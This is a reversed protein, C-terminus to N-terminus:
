SSTQPATEIGLIPAMRNEWLGPLEDELQENKLRGVDESKDISSVVEKEMLDRDDLYRQLRSVAEGLHDVSWDETLAVGILRGLLKWASERLVDYEPLEPLSRHSMRVVTLIRRHLPWGDLVSEEIMRGVELGDLMSYDGHYEGAFLPYGELVTKWVELKKVDTAAMSSFFGVRDMLGDETMRRLCDSSEEHAAISLLEDVIREKSVSVLDGAHELIQDRLESTVEFDLETAFRYARLIRLPDRVLSEEDTVRLNNQRIDDRGGCPDVWSERNMDLAISNITFDRRELDDVVAGDDVVTVDLQLEDSVQRYIGRQEDLDFFGSEFDEELTSRVTEPFDTVLLDYDKPPTGLLLDRVAGGVLFVGIDSEVFPETIRRLKRREKGANKDALHLPEPLKTRGTVLSRVIPLMNERSIKHGPSLFIPNAGNMSRFAYGIPEGDWIDTFSGVSSAPEEYEGVLNEEACGISPREMLLGLHSALGFRRPHAYGHGDVLLCDPDRDLKMLAQLMLPAERFALLGPVYPFTLDGLLLVEDLVERHPLSYLVVSTIGFQSEPDMSIDIAAVTEVSPDGKIVCDEALSKQLVEAEDVTLNWPHMPEGLIVFNSM